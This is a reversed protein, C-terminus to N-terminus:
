IYDMIEPFGETENQYDYNQYFHLYLYALEPVHCFDNLKTHSYKYLASHVKDVIELWKKIM